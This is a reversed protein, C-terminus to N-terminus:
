TVRIFDHGADHGVRGDGPRPARRAGRAPQPGRVIGPHRHARRGPQRGRRTASSTTSSTSARRRAAPDFYIAFKGDRRASRASGTRSARRTRCRPRRRTTTTPSTSRTRSRRRPRRTTPSRILDVGARAPREREPERADALVPTLDRGRLATRREAGAIAAITPLLDVLSALADTERAAAPVAGPELRGAPRPDDGRLRQVGEPAPRRPLPGDRRPRRLPRDVTRSRLSSPTAPTASRTSCAASRRTSSAPAPPRLLQRLRAAGARERLPGLYATMGMRM